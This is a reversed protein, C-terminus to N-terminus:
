SGPRSVRGGAVVEPPRPGRDGDVLQQLKWAAGLLGVRAEIIDRVEQVDVAELAVPEDTLAQWMPPWTRIYADVLKELDDIFSRSM